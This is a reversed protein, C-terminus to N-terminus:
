AAKADAWPGMRPEDYGDNEAYQWLKSDLVVCKEGELVEHTVEVIEVVFPVVGCVERGDKGAEVLADYRQEADERNVEYQDLDSPMYARLECDEANRIPAGAEFSNKGRYRVEFMLNEKASERREPSRLLRAM